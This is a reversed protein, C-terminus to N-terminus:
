ELRVTQYLVHPNKPFGVSKEIMDSRQKAADVNFTCTQLHAITIKATDEGDYLAAEGPCRTSEYNACKLRSCCSSTLFVYIIQIIMYNYIKKKFLKLIKYIYTDNRLRIIFPSVSM